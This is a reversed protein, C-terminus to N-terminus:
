HLPSTRARASGYGGGRVVPMVRGLREARLEPQIVLGTGKRVSSQGLPRLRVIPFRTPNVARVPEFGTDEAWHGACVDTVMFATVPTQSMPRLQDDTRPHMGARGGGLLGSSEDSASRLGIYAGLNLVPGTLVQGHDSV